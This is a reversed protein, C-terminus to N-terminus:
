TNNTITITITITIVGQVCSTTVLGNGQNSTRHAIFATGRPLQAWHAPTNALELQPAHLM